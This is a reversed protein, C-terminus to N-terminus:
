DKCLTGKFEEGDIVITIIEAPHEDKYNKETIPKNRKDLRKSVYDVTIAAGIVGLTVVVVM